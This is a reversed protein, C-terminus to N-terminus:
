MNIVDQLRSYRGYQRNSRYDAFALTREDILKLFGHRGGRHQVSPRSMETQVAQVNPTVAIDLFGYHM